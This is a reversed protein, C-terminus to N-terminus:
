VSWGGDVNVVSGTMFENMALMLAVEAVEEVTGFRKVPVRDMMKERAKESIASTMDTEIYGPSIANVRINAPGLEVALAKTLGEVAAKTATYISSGPVPRHALASSFNIIVGGKRARISNRAFAQSAYITGLLNTQVLSKISNPSTRVLLSVQTIGAANVLVDVDDLVGKGYDKSAFDQVDGVVINHRLLAGDEAATALQERAAELKERNRAMLICTAGEDSFRKAIALGLGRSGGTVLCKKSRLM